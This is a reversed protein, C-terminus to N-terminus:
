PEEPRSPAQPAPQASPRDGDARRDDHAPDPAPTAPRAAAAGPLAPRTPRPLVEVREGARPFRMRHEEAALGRLRQPDTTADIEVALRAARASLTSHTRAAEAKRYGIELVQYEMHVRHAGLGLLALVAVAALATALDFPGSPPTARVPTM